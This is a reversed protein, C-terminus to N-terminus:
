LQLESWSFAYIFQSCFRRMYTCFNGLMKFSLVFYSDRSVTGKLQSEEGPAASDVATRKTVTSLPPGSPADVVNPPSAALTRATVFDTRKTAAWITKAECEAFIGGKDPEPETEQLIFLVTIARIESMARIEAM